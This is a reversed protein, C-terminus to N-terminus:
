YHFFVFFVGFFIKKLTYLSFLKGNTNLHKRINWGLGVTDSRVLKEPDVYIYLSEGAARGSQILETGQWCEESGVRLSSPCAHLCIVDQLCECLFEANIEHCPASEWFIYM